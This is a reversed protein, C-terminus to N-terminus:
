TTSNRTSSSTNAHVTNFPVKSGNIFEMKPPNAAKSLPYIKLKERIMKSTPEPKGDVLFGRLVVFNIRSPSRAVFYEGGDKVDKPVEGKFWEPVILYKGGKGADPGPAGMDIVFRFFADDVTTPGM